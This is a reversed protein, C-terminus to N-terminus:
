CAARTGKVDRHVFAPRSPRVDELTPVHGDWWERLDVQQLCRGRSDGFGRRSARCAKGGWVTPCHYPRDARQFTIAGATMGSDDGGVDPRSKSKESQRKGLICSPSVLPSNMRRFRCHSAQGVAPRWDFCVGSSGAHLRHDSSSCSVGEDLLVDSFADLGHEDVVLAELFVELARYHFFGHPPLIAHAVVHPSAEHGCRPSAPTDDIISRLAFTFYAPM